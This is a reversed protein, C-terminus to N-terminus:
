NIGSPPATGYRLLREFCLYQFSPGLARTGGLDTVSM